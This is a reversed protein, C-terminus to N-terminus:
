RSVATERIVRFTVNAYGKGSNRSEARNETRCDTPKSDWAGGKVALKGGQRSTSTWEWANGWMDIAGSAAETGSYATVPLLGGKGGCNRDADKPMHGAAYEWEKETPLRYTTQRDKRTLWHCYPQADKASVFVVPYDKQGEPCTGNKWNPPAATGTEQTFLAYEANTVPHRAIDINQGAGPVPLYDPNSLRPNPRMRPDLFRAMSQNIRNERDRLMEHVIDQMEEIKSAHRATRKLDELKAKKRAVVADYNKGCQARLAAKNKPSPDRRCLAILRRTEGNLQPKEKEITTSYRFPLSSRNQPHGPEQAFIAPAIMGLLARVTTAPTIRKMVGGM